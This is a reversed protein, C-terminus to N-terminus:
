RKSEGLKAAVKDAAATVQAEVRGRRATASGGAEQVQIVSALHQVLLARYGEFREDIRSAQEKAAGLLPKTRELMQDERICSTTM